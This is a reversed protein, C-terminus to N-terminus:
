TRVAGREAEDRQLVSSVAPHDFWALLACSRIMKIVDRMPIIPSLAWVNVWAHRDAADLLAFPRRYRLWAGVAFVILVCRFPLRLFAPMRAIQGHVFAVM